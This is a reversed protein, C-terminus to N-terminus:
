EPQWGLSKSLFDQLSAQATPSLALATLASGLVPAPQLTIASADAASTLAPDQGAAQAAQTWLAVSTPDTLHPLVLLFDLRAAAAAAQYAADLPSTVSGGFTIADPLDPFQPDPGIAGNDDLVGLSFLPAAGAATLAAADAPVGEGCLFVADVTGDAFASAKAATGRLGFVPATAIGLRALALLAALDASQPADAAIRLPALSKLYDIDTPTGPQTRLLLVGSANGSMLPTWRTPDFHVRSDGILFALLAAGPLLAATHGDPTVQTDLQNAGTVGDLGGVTQALIAPTGPIGNSFALACANGWRSLVGGNPGAVLLSLPGGDASARRAVLATFLAGALGGLLNRRKM